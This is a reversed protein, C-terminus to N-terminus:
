FGIDKKMNLRSHFRLLASDIGKTFGLLTSRALLAHVGDESPSRSAAPSEARNVLMKQSRTKEARLCLGRGGPQQAQRFM